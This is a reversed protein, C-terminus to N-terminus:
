LRLGTAVPPAMGVTLSAGPLKQISGAGMPVGWPERIHKGQQSRRAQSGGEQLNGLGGGLWGGRPRNHSLGEVLSFMWLAIVFRMVEVLHHPCPLLM